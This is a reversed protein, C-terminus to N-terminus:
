GNRFKQKFEFEAIGHYNIEKYINNTLEKLDTPVSEVQGVICYGVDPPYGCIKRGTFM